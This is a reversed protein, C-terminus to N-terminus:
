SPWEPAVRPCAAEDDDCQDQGQQCAEEVAKMQPGCTLSEIAGLIAGPLTVSDSDPWTAAAALMGNFLARAMHRRGVAQNACDARTTRPTRWPLRGRHAV